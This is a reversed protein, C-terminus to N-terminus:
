LYKNTCRSCMILHKKGRRAGEINIYKSLTKEQMQGNICFDKSCEVCKFYWDYKNQEITNYLKRM